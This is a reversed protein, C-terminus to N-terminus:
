GEHIDAYGRCSVSTFRPAADVRVATLSGGWACGSDLSIVDGHVGAGLAAWHGFLVRQGRSARGAVDFWPMFGAAQSGLGGKSQLDQRGEADCFRLRTFTNTIFRLRDWGALTERWQDPHNGYMHRFFEGAFPGRLAAHVEEAFRRAQAIDWQPVLGAHILTAQQAADHHLLPQAKLWGLLEPADPADLVDRFTDFKKYSVAQEAVALLHLDHNGLVTVAREGLGSVFRLVEASKPGRNVLDGTFWLRDRDARFGVEQLLARLEDYCGQVDGIAYLSM